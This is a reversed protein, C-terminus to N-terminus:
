NSATMTYSECLYAIAGVTVNFLSTRFVLYRNTNLKLM